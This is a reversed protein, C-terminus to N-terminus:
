PQVMRILSDRRMAGDHRYSLVKREIRGANKLAVLTRRVTEVCVGHLAALDAVPVRRWGQAILDRVEIGGRVAEIDWCTEGVVGSLLAWISAELHRSSGRSSGLTPDLLPPTDPSPALAARLTSLRTHDKADRAALAAVVTDVCYDEPNTGPKRQVKYQPWGTSWLLAVLIEARRPNDRLFHSALFALLFDRGSPTADMTPNIARITQTYSKTFLGNIGDKMETAGRIRALLQRAAKKDSDRLQSLRAGRAPEVLRHLYTWDDPVKGCVRGGMPDHWYWSTNVLSHPAVGYSHPGLLEVGQPLGGGTAGKEARFGLPLEYWVHWGGSPTRERLVNRVDLGIGEVDALTAGHKGDVDVILHRPSPSIGVNREPDLYWLNCVDSFDPLRGERGHAFGTAKDLEKTGPKLPVVRFGARAYAIAAQAQPFPGNGLEARRVMHTPNMRLMDVVRDDFRAVIDM